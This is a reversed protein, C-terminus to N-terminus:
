TERRYNVPASEGWKGTEDPKIAQPSLAGKTDGEVSRSETHSDAANSHSTQQAPADTGGQAPAVPTDSSAGRFAKLYGWADAILAEFEAALAREKEPRQWLQLLLGKPFESVEGGREELLASLAAAAGLAYRRPRIGEQLALRMAGILRDDWALKRAPDRAVRAIEDDLFPNVMRELYVDIFHAMGGSTFLPDIGHYRAALAMGPEEYAAARVLPLIGPVYRLQAMSTCGAIKGLYAGFAHMGNHCYLKAEEFPLLDPKERFRTIGPAFGQQLDPSAFSVRSILIDDFAEVLFAKDYGPAIYALPQKCRVPDGYGCMKSIVTNVFAVRALIADAEGEPLWARVAAELLEAAHNNNEATYILAPAGSTEYKRRLGAAILRAPSDLGRSADFTAVSPLATAVASAEAIAEVLLDFSPADNPNYLTVPAVEVSEVHDAHAINLSYRGANTVAAVKDEIIESAVLRDFAGCRAAEYLFLGAQIPGFGTGVFTAM